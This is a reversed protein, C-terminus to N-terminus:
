PDVANSFDSLDARYKWCFYDDKETQEVGMSGGIFLFCVSIVESSLQRWRFNKGLVAPMSKKM